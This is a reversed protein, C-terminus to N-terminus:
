SACFMRRAKGHGGCGAEARLAWYAAQCRTLFSRAPDYFTGERPQILETAKTHPVLPPCFNMHREERECPPGRVVDTASGNMERM